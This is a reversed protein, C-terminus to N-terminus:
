KDWCRWSLRSAIFITLNNNSNCSFCPCVLL